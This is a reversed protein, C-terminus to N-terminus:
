DDLDADDVTRIGTIAFRIKNFLLGITLMLAILPQVWYEATMLDELKLWGQEYFLGLILGIFILYLMVGLTGITKLTTVFFFFIIILLIFSITLKLFIQQELPSGTWLHYVSYGTPNWIAYCVLTILIFWVWFPIKTLANM